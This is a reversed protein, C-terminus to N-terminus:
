DLPPSIRNKGELISRDLLKEARRVMDDLSEEMDFILGLSITFMITEGRATVVPSQSAEVRLNDLFEYAEVDAMNELLVCFRDGYFRAPTHEMATYKKLIQSFHKIVLDGVDYGYSDIISHFDDLEIMAITFEARYERNQNFFSQTYEFFHRRNYLGSLTDITNIKKIIGVNDLDKITNSVRCDFEERLFPKHLFDDGGLKLLRSAVQPTGSSSITIISLKDKGFIQRIAITLEMGSMVPMTYDALVVQIGRERKLIDLAILGNEAELVQYQQIQLYHVMLQRSSRSDDVVLIKRERNKIVQDLREVIYLIDETREKVIYDIIDKKMIEQHVNDSLKDSMVLVSINAKLVYDVIEESAKDPHVWDILAIFIDNPRDLIAKTESFSETTVIKLGFKRKLSQLLLEHMIGSKEVILIEDKM